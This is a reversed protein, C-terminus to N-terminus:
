ITSKIITFVDTNAVIVSALYLITLLIKINIEINSVKEFDTVKKNFYFIYVHICFGFLFALDNGTLVCLIAIIQLLITKKM